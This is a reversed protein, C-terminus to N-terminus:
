ISSSPCNRISCSVLSKSNILVATADYKKGEANTGHRSLTMTKGDASVVRRDTWIVKGDKKETATITHNNVRKISTTDQNPNGTVTGDKRGFPAKYNFNLPEVQSDVGDVSAKLGDGEAEYRVTVSGMGSGDLKSKAVDLKWTGIFPSDAAFSAFALILAVPVTM